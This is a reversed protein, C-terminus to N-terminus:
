RAFNHAGIVATVPRTRWFDMAVSKRPNYFFLAGNTPDEGSLARDVAALATPGPVVSQLRGLEVAKFQGPERIVATITKPFGPHRIRNVVVAAVGVQGELPENGAEATVLRALLLREEETCPIVAGAAVATGEPGAPREVDPERSDPTEPEPGPPVPAPSAPQIEAPPTPGPQPEANTAGPKPPRGVLAGRDALWEPPRQAESAPRVTAYAKGSASGQGGSPREGGAPVVQGAPNPAPTLPPAAPTVPLVLRQGVRILCDPGIGNLERLAEVTTGVRRALSYLTDGAQVVYFAAPEAGRALGGGVGLVLLTAALAACGWQRRAAGRDARGPDIRM